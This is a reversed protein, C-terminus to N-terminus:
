EILGKEKMSDLDEKLPSIEQGVEFKQGKYFLRVNAKYKKTIKKTVKKAVKKTAKKEESM